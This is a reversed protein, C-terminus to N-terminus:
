RAALGSASAPLNAVQGRDGLKGDPRALLIDLTHSTSDLVYIFRGDDSFDLDIPGDGVKATVGGDAFRALSGDRRVAYGSVSASGTNTAYAYRGTRDVAVWCAATQGTPVSASIPTLQGSSSLRYSSVASAGAAGGFAESVLVTGNPTIAFGFPTNGASPTVRPASVGGASDVQYTLINNTAKETVVLVDGWPAFQIQAPAVAAASLPQSAGAISHLQGGDLAFGAINGPVGARGANVVYLLEDHVTLSIPNAGGSSAIDRLVLFDPFVDFVSIEDSGANVAYLHRGDRSLILAGQSGLGQGTGLGGTPFTGAATLAGGSSRHFRVIANRTAVNDMVYVSRLAASSADSLAGDSTDETPSTALADDTACSALALVVLPSLLPLSRAHMNFM